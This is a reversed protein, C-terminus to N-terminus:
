DDSNGSGTEDDGAGDDGAGDDGGGADGSGPDITPFPEIDVPTDAEAADADPADAVFDAVSKLFKQEVSSATLKVVYDSGSRTLYYGTDDDTKSGVTIRHTEVVLEPTAVEEGEEGAAPAEAVSSTVFEIVATPSDMGYSGDDKGVPEDMYASSLGRLVAEVKDAAVEGAQAPTMNWGGDDGRSVTVSEGDRSITLSTIDGSEVDLWQTDVWRSAETAFDWTSLDNVLYVTDDGALRVNNQNYNPSSGVVLTGLEAGGDGTLRIKRQFNSDSVELRKHNKAKRTVPRGGTVGVVKDIIPMLRAEDLPYGDASTLVWTGGEKAMEITDGEDDTITVGLVATSDIGEFLQTREVSTMGAGEFPSAIVFVAAIQVVLAVALFINLKSM